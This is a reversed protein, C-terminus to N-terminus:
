KDRMQGPAVAEGRHDLCDEVTFEVRYLTLVKLVM